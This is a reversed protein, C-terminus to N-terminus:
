IVVLEEDAKTYYDVLKGRLLTPLILKQRAVNWEKAKAVLEFRMWAWHVNGITIESLPLDM